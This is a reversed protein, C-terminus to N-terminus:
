RPRPVRAHAYPAKEKNKTILLFQYHGSVSKDTAVYVPTGLIFQPFLSEKKIIWISGDSLRLVKRPDSPQEGVYEYSTEPEKRIVTRPVIEGEELPLTEEKYTYTTIKKYVPTNKKYYVETAVVQLPEEKHKIFIVPVSEDRETNYLIFDHERKFWYFSKRLSIFVPDHLSWTSFTEISKPHIKWKSGDSLIATASSTSNDSKSLIEKKELTQVISPYTEYFCPAAQLPSYSLFALFCLFLKM